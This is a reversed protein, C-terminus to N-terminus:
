VGASYLLSAATAGDRLLTSAFGYRDLDFRSITTAGGSGLNGTFQTQSINAERLNFDHDNRSNASEVGVNSVHVIRPKRGWNQSHSFSFTAGNAGQFTVSNGLLVEALGLHNSNALNTITPVNSSNTVVRAFLVDDFKTDFSVDNEPLSSPNYAADTLDKLVYGDTSNWRLHYTRSVATPFDTQATTMVAVGRHIWNVGGPLRVTGSAPSSVTIRGDASEVEPYIPLRAAAQSLLLFQSTDGGGTAANILAVIAQRLQTNDADSGTLGAHEIVEGMESELRNFLGNFLTQDAPGCPFGNVKEDATPLRRGANQAFPTTFNAM